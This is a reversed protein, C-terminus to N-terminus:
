IHPCAYCRRSSRGLFILDPGETNFQTGVLNVLIWSFLALVSSYRGKMLRSAGLCCLKTLSDLQLIGDVQDLSRKGRSLIEWRVNLAVQKFSSAISIGLLMSLGTTLFNFIKKDVDMDMVTKRKYLLITGFLGGLLALTILYRVLGVGLLRFLQKTPNFKRTNQGEGNKLLGDTEIHHIPSKNM